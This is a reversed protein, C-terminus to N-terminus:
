GLLARLLVTAYHWPAEEREPFDQAV